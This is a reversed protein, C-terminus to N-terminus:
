AAASRDISPQHVEATVKADPWDRCAHLYERAFHILVRRNGRRPLPSFRNLSDDKCLRVLGVDLPKILERATVVGPEKKDSHLREPHWLIEYIGAAAAMGALGHTVYACHVRRGGPQGYNKLTRFDCIIEGDPDVSREVAVLGGSIESHVTLSVCLTADLYVQLGITDDRVEAERMPRVLKYIEVAHLNRVGNM